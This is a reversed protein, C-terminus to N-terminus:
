DDLLLMLVPTIDVRDGVSVTAFRSCNNGAIVEDQVRDVCLELVYDGRIVPALVSLAIVRAAGADLGSFAVSSSQIISSGSLVRLRAMSPPAVGTGRNAITAAVRIPRGIAPQTTSVSASVVGLDPVLTQPMDLFPTNEAFYEFANANTIALNPSSNALRRSGAQNLASSFDDSDAVISFHSVEHVITGSKSDTGDRPVRFFVGCLTMNYPDNKFVFAFTNNPDVGPQGTCDCNFGITQNSLASAIRSMGREVTAYRGPSYAGFWERYRRANPRLIDPANRLDRVAIASIREASSLASDIEVRQATSCNQFRPVRKLARIPRDATLKIISSTQVGKRVVFGEDRMSVHYEGRYNIPYAALLDVEGVISQGPSLTVYDDATPAIRKAHLGTYPLQEGEHEISFLDETLGGNLATEWRVLSVSQKSLNTYTVAVMAKQDVSISSKLATVSVEIGSPLSTGAFASNICLWVAWFFVCQYKGFRAM